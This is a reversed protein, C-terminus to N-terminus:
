RVWLAAKDEEGTTENKERENRGRATVGVGYIM